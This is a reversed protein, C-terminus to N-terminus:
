GSWHARSAARASSPPTSASPASSVTSMSPAACPSSRRSRSRTTRGDTSSSWKVSVSLEAVEADTVGVVMLRYDVLVGLDVAQRFWLQHAVEGFREKDDMSNLEIDERNALRGLAAPGYVRPTATAFLRRRARIRAADLVVRLDRDATVERSTIGAVRHAEDAVVLDFPPVDAQDQAEAVRASSAYTGFVVRRGPGRLFAAILDPDTTVPTGLEDSRVRWEDKGVDADSCVALDVFPLWAHVKWVQRFQKLLLLTPVLVLVLRDRRAEAIWETVLTKGTGCAMVLQARDRDRLVRVVDAVADEQYPRPKARVRVPEVAGSVAELAGTWDIPSDVLDPRLLWETDTRGVTADELNRSRSTANSVLIRRPFLDQRYALFTAVDHYRLHHRPDRRYKAQVAILTGERDEAILDAGLDTAALGHRQRAPWDAWLWAAALDLRPDHRLFHLVGREFAQGREQESGLRSVAAELEDFAPDEQRMMRSSM